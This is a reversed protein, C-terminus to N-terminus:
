AGTLEFFNQFLTRCIQDTNRLQEIEQEVDLGLEPHKEARYHVLRVTEEYLMEAHFQVGWLPLDDVRLAQMECVESRALQKLAGGVNRVEDEHSVFCKFSRELGEFIPDDVLLEIDVCGVEAVSARGAAEVGGFAAGLAQHGFCVGLTPTKSDAARTLLAILDDVWPTPEAVSAASGTILISSFPELTDPLVERTARVVQYPREGLHRIFNSAGGDDDVYCDLILTTRMDILTDRGPSGASGVWRM